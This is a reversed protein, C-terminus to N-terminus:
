WGCVVLIMGRHSACQMCVGLSNCLDSKRWWEMGHWTGVRVQVYSLFIRNVVVAARASDEIVPDREDAFYSHRKELRPADDEEEKGKGETGESLSPGVPGSDEPSILITVTPISGREDWVKGEKIQSFIVSGRLSTLNYETMDLLSVGSSLSQLLQETPRSSATLVSATAASGDAQSSHECPEEAKSPRTLSSPSKLASKLMSPQSRLTPAYPMSKSRARNYDRIIGTNSVAAAANAPSTVNTSPSTISFASPKSRPLSQTPQAIQASRGVAGAPPDDQAETHTLVPGLPSLTGRSASKPHSPQPRLPQHASYSRSKPLPTLGERSDLHLSAPGSQSPMLSSAPPAPPDATLEDITTCIGEESAETGSSHQLVLRGGGGRSALRALPSPSGSYARSSRMQYDSAAAAFNIRRPANKLGVAFPTPLSPLLQLQACKAKDDLSATSSTPKPVSHGTGASANSVSLGEENSTSASAAALKSLANETLTDVPVFESQLLIRTRPTKIRGQRKYQPPDNSAPVDQSSQGLQVELKKQKAAQREEMSEVFGFSSYFTWALFVLTVLTALTYYLPNLKHCAKCTAIGQTGYGPSCEGCLRGRYGEACQSSAYSSLNGSISDLFLGIFISEKTAASSNQMSPQSASPPPPFPPPPSIELLSRPDGGSHLAHKGEISLVHTSAPNSGQQHM